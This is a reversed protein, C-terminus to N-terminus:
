GLLALDGFFPRPRLDDSSPSAVLSCWEDRTVGTVGAYIHIKYFLPIAFNNAHM